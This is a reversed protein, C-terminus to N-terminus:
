EFDQDINFCMMIDAHETQLVSFTVDTRAFLPSFTNPLFVTQFSELFQVFGMTTCQDVGKLEDDINEFISTFFGLIDNSYTDVTIVLRSTFCWNTPASLSLKGYM